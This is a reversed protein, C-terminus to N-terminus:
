YQALVLERETRAALKELELYNSTDRHRLQLEVTELLMTIKM